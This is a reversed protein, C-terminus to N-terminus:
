ETFIPTAAYFDSLANLIKLRRQTSINPALRYNISAVAYGASALADLFIPNLDSKDSSTLRAYALDSKDGSTMGGGHVFIVLPMPYVATENPIYLDLKQSDGYTM